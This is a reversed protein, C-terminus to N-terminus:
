KMEGKGKAYPTLGIEIREANLEKILMEQKIDPINEKGFLRKRRVDMTLKRLPIIAKDGEWAAKKDMLGGDLELSDWPGPGVYEYGAKFILVSMSAVSSFIKLGLGQVEFEGNWDTVTERADYYSSVGGAPTASVKYWVGLVVVGEIPRGTEADIVRGRYPGDYRVPNCCSPMLMLIFLAFVKTLKITKM